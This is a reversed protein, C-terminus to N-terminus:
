NRADIILKLFDETKNLDFEQIEKDFPLKNKKEENGYCYEELLPIIEYQWILSIDEKKQVNFLYSHGIQKESGLSRDSAISINIKELAKVSKKLLESTEDDMKLLNTNISEDLVLALNPEVPYFGFRRRLAIDLMAISRDSTNMTAVIYLNQPVCFKDKSLPLTVEFPHNAGLRKDAELLTILEGFIKSIDGRNIEDIILVFKPANKWDIPKRENYKEFAKSWMLDEPALNQYDEGLAALLSKTCFTKFLGSRVLYQLNQSPVNEEPTHVTLGEMFEEYSYSPHFTIFEIQEDKCYKEFINNIDNL